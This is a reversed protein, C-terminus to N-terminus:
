GSAGVERLATDIAESVARDTPNSSKLIRSLSLLFDHRKAHPLISAADQVARRAATSLSLPRPTAFRRSRLRTPSM